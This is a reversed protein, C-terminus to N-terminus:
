YFDIPKRRFENYSYKNFDNDSVRNNQRLLYNTPKSNFLRNDKNLDKDNYIELM